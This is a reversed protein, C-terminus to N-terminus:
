NNINLNEKKMLHYIGCDKYHVPDSNICIIGILIFIFSFLKHNM